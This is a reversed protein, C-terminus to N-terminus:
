MQDILIPNVWYGIGLKESFVFLFGDEREKWVELRDGIYQELSITDAVYEVEEYPIFFGDEDMTVIVYNQNAIAKIEM